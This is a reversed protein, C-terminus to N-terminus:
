RRASRPPRPVFYATRRQYEAFGPRGKLYRETLRAGSVDVLLYTMLLPSGVTALPAWDNITILWLGWWVCADGFYNPHRTWAWLGRDMIVGRNAPDSKFVWLQWDGVAEFTIGVLWVALGVGGVALLPKPTPGTVASLQLPFSVFLTLLGQLGFVKRLAQVPTAGRLLDAYRPDEGQGATKRYMHWSLRLGWTSVLALLLWRRVPDGHGLTAAAVAVAVFGLGWVVDVVNYRGIRRGIAFAVSHVVAVALASVSTVVVINVPPGERILTWQYVDLYGSRFGAESYALYLEWMRAFVEDFGLHALGDRRQMFRERWLRLTEAYHPRLSAADVIRLGTHQGTIDIIAQTSPLLGGPFIYKQIWTQTHRTALMRHHPMTIAQIAVPGGPRVLQELAAFYRPWSRYGVAEIMEVSVVSDYQGDVDRYDCLDIEVRHGFGAAAVRQRALRQQEVSLTVSRIHAGRAAARICLEGWGTGIELVHSGQQVGAVDLLRDIKRRQAAALETWAPTPQALLDTFMACSYTMTEDLFAAFLDNSLDYHVAINRRAQDRSHDPWSPRFTPTIPRLWHLSRPVLEDVSGALVTLVRTLEKSSWEGAMYSEGFGILGHRGIRRALADPRHIFLSPARPDAAGTATGDSYVLRLPLHTATRRLLRNAIAASAAALPGRPVKAVAPWRDSDIAASPTQSTEVTM